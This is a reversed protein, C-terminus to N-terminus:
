PNKQPKHADRKLNDGHFIGNYDPNKRDIRASEIFAADERRIELHAEPCQPCSETDHPAEGFFKRCFQSM